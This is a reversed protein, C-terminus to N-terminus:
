FGKGVEKIIQRVAPTDPYYLIEGQLMPLIQKWIVRTARNSYMTANIRDCITGLDLM